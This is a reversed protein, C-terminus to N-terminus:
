TTTHLKFRYEKALKKFDTTDFTLLEKIGEEQMVALISCDVFSMNKSQIEQFIRWSQEQLEENIHIIEISPNKLIYEGAEKAATRGKKQSLVTVVELFVFNSIVFFETGKDFNGATRVAKEYQADNPNFFAVWYNSDVFIKRNKEEM